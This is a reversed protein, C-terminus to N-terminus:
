ISICINEVLIILIMIPYCEIWPMKCTKSRIEYKISQNASISKRSIYFSFIMNPPFVYKMFLHLDGLFTIMVILNQSEYLMICLLFYQHSITICYCLSSSIWEIQKLTRYITCVINGIQMLVSGHMLPSYLLSIINQAAESSLLYSVCPGRTFQCHSIHLLYHDCTLPTQAFDFSPTSHM